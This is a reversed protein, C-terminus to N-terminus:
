ESSLDIGTAAPLWVLLEQARRDSTLYTHAYAWERLATQHLAGGQCKDETYLSKDRSERCADRFAFARCCSGNDTM